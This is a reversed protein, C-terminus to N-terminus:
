DKRKDYKEIIKIYDSDSRKEGKLAMTHRIDLADFKKKGLKQLLYVSYQALNGSYYHNCRICQGHVNEEDFDLVNHWFHGANQSPVKKGEILCTVCYPDRTRIYESFVKWAKDKYNKIPRPM